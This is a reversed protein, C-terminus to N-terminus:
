KNKRKKNRKPKNKRKINKFSSNISSPSKHKSQPTKQQKSPTKNQSSLSKPHSPPTKSQNSSKRSKKIPMKKAPLKPPPIKSFENRLKDRVLKLYRLSSLADKTRIRPSIRLKHGYLEIENFLALCYPVSEEDEFLVYAHTDFLTIDVVPGGQCFLEKLLNKTITKSNFSTVYLTRRAVSNDIM